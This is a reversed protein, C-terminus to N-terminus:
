KALVDLLNLQVSRRGRFENIQPTFALDARGGERVRLEEATKSFFVCEFTEKDKSIWIKTHKGSCIPIVSMVEADKICMVPTQNDTGYPELQSLCQVNEISLIEAKAVEFDIRLEAAPPMKAVETYHRGIRERFEDISAEEITLGAAMEHGGFSLICDRNAELAEYLNFSGASRCSGKGVGDQLCIIIAPLGYRETLRSAVIGTVGQHWSDSSLVIPKGEPPRKQLMDLAQLFIEGELLQRERNLDCLTGALECATKEDDTLLLRQACETRGLRGAANIRPALTFGVNGATLAKRDIGAAECLKVIGVRGGRKIRDLGYRIFLRNEGTVPVVDAITGVAVLDGYREIMEEYPAGEVACALKFAVGVGALSKEPYRGNKRKPDVVAVAEPLEEGCEHHDTVVIDVGLSAAYSAEEVATIGCDVTIILTVGMDALTKIGAKKIGYGEELREPIYLECKCGKERFFSVLLCSSTIGDVDYDGYVAIHEGEAMAKKIRDVAKDMDDLLFPDCIASIDNNILRLAGETDTVGRSALLVSVLPNIGNKFLEKAVSRDYGAIRWEGRGMDEGNPPVIFVGGWEIDIM